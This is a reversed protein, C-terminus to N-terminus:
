SWPECREFPVQLGAGLTVVTYLGQDDRSRRTPGLPCAAAPVHVSTGRDRCPRDLSHSPQVAVWVFFLRDAPGDICIADRESGGFSSDLRPYVIATRRLSRGISIQSKPEVVFLSSILGRLVNVVVGDGWYRCACKFATLRRERRHDSRNLEGVM